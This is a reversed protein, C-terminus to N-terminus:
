VLTRNRRRMLDMLENPHLPRVIQPPNAVEPFLLQWKDTDILVWVRELTDKAYTFKGKAAVATFEVQSGNM